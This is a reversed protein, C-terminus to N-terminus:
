AYIQRNNPMLATIKRLVEILKSNNPLTVKISPTHPEKIDNIFTSVSIIIPYQQATM